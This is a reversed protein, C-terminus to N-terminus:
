HLAPFPANSNTEDSTQESVWAMARALRDQGVEKSVIAVVMSVAMEVNHAHDSQGHSQLLSAMTRCQAISLAAM